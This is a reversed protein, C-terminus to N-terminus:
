GSVVNERKLKGIPNQLVDMHIPMIKRLQVQFLPSYYLQNYKLKLSISPLTTKHKSCYIPDSHKEERSGLKGTLLIIVQDKKWLLIGGGGQNAMTGQDCFCPEPQRFGTLWPSSGLPQEEM